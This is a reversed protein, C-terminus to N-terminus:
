SKDKSSFLVAKEEPIAIAKIISFLFAAAIIAFGAIILFKGPNNRIKEKILFYRSNNDKLFRLFKEDLVKDKDKIHSVKYIIKDEMNGSPPEVELDKAYKLYKKISEAM